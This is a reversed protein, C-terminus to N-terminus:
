VKTLKKKKKIFSLIIEAIISWSFYDEAYERAKLQMMKLQSGNGILHIAKEALDKDDGPEHLQLFGETEFEKIGRVSSALIARGSAAYAYFKIPSYGSTLLNLLPLLALDFANIYLNSDQYPVEGLFHIYNLNKYTEQLYPLQRGGGVILLHVNPCKKVVEKIALIANEAGKWSELDSILGIYFNQSDLKLSNLTDIRNIPYFLDLDVGNGVVVIKDQDVGNQTLKEKIGEVVVVALSALKADMIQLQKILFYGFSSMKIEKVEACFWGNHETIITHFGRLRLFIIVIASLLHSRLYVCDYNKPKLTFIKLLQTLSNLSTQSVPIFKTLFRSSFFLQDFCDSIVQQSKSLHGFDPVLGHVLHGAKRFERALSTFHITGGNPRDLNMTSIM